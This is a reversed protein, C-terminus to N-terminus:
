NSMMPLGVIDGSLNVYIDTNNLMKRERLGFSLIGPLLDPPM